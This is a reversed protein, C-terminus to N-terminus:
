SEEGGSSAPDGESAGSDGGGAADANQLELAHVPDLRVIRDYLDDAHEGAAKRIRYLLGLPRAVTEGAEWRDLGHQDILGLMDDLLPRAVADLGHDVMLAAAEARTLFGQRPHSAGEAAQLLLSVAEQAKGGRARSRAQSVLQSVGEGGGRAPAAARLAAARDADFLGQAHLWVHTERNATPSDDMLTADPLSPVDRLMEGLAGLVLRRVPDYGAGLGELARVVYRQLDLWGRGFPSAMVEEAAELLASWSEDLLLTKLRTRVQTPPAELLRPDPPDGGKRVEAWRFGRLLAYPVPDRPDQSRLFRAADAVRAAADAPSALPAAAAASGDAQPATGQVGSEGAEPSVGETSASVEVPDPDQELKKELLKRAIREVEQISSVLGSFTPALDEFRERCEEDLSAVSGLSADIGAVLDKYWAKPTAEFAKDFEEPTIKGEAIAASRAEKKEYSDDESEYGLTQAERYALFDHGAATLPVSKIGLDLYGAIWELPTARFEADGDELEPYVTDWFDVLLGRVVELGTHFGEFGEERLLAESLWAALQLDKTRTSLADTTLAIVRGFDALKRERQWEGVPIDDEETRALKVEDYLPEYRLDEGAPNDGPIPQLLDQPLEM